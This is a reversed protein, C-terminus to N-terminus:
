KKPAEDHPTFSNAMRDLAESLSKLATVLGKRLEESVKGSELDEVVQKAGTEVKKGAESSRVNKAADNLEDTLRSLGERIDKELRHREESHWAANIADRLKRGVEAFEAAVDVQDAQPRENEPIPPTKGNGSM